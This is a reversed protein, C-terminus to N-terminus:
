TARETTQSGVSRRSWFCSSRLGSSHPTTRSQTSPSCSSTRVSSRSRRGGGPVLDSSPVLGLSAQAERNRQATELYEPWSRRHGQATAEVVVRAIADDRDPLQKDLIGDGKKCSKIRGVSDATDLYAAGIGAAVTELAAGIAEQYPRGKAPSNVRAAAVAAATTAASAAGVVMQHVTDLKSALETHQREQQEALRRELAGLPSAPNNVDLTKSVETLTATLSRQWAAHNETIAKGVIDKIAVMAKGGEPGLLRDLETRVSEMADAVGSGVEKQFRERAEDIIKGTAETAERTAKAATAVVQASASLAGNVLSTSATQAQEALHSVTGSLTVATSDDGTAQLVRAGLCVAMRHFESLDAGAAADPEVEEGRVGTTWRLSETQVEPEAVVASRVVLGEGPHYTVLPEDQVPQVHIATM